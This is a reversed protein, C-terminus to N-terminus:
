SFCLSQCHVNVGERLARRIFSIASDHSIVNLSARSKSLMLESLEEAHHVNAYYGLLNKKQKIIDYLEDRKDDNLKKSDAFGISVLDAHCSIPSFCCGYVMPGLVPGRGAEDIGLQVAQNGFLSSFGECDARVQLRIDFVSM